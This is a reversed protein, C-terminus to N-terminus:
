KGPGHLAIDEILFTVVGDQPVAYQKEVYQFTAGDSTRTLTGVWQFLLNGQGNIHLRYDATGTYAPTTNAIFPCFKAPDFPNLDGVNGEDYIALENDKATLLFAMGQVDSPTRVIQIDVSVRTSADTCTTLDATRGHIAILGDDPDSTIVRSQSNAIRVIFPGPSAPGNTFNFSPPRRETAPQVPDAASCAAVTLALAAMSVLTSLAQRTELM